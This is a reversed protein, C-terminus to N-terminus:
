MVNRGSKMDAGESTVEIRDGTVKYSTKYKGSHFIHSLKIEQLLISEFPVAYRFEDLPTLSIRM